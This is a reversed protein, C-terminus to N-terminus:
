TFDAGSDILARLSVPQPITKGAARLAQANARSLGILVDVAMGDDSTTFTLVPMSIEALTAAGGTARGSNTSGPVTSRRFTRLRLSGRMRVKSGAGGSMGMGARRLMVSTTSTAAPATANSQSPAQTSGQYATRPTPM